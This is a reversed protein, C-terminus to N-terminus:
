LFRETDVNIVARTNDSEFDPLTCRTYVSVDTSDTTDTWTMANESMTVNYSAGWAVGDTYIGSIIGNEFGVTSYYTEWLRSTM